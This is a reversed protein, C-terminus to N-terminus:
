AAAEIELQSRVIDRYTPCSAMLETHTGDGVVRGADLVIIRDASLVTAVRQAVVLVAADAVNEALAARLRADTAADLASFCDDLVFLAPRRLVARAIALRQRQGGSLNSGGQNVTSALAEPMQRVFDAAQAIELARWVEADTADPAGLRVTSAVTGSFLFAKQPVYGIQRWLEERAQQRVDIGDVLVQGGTVDHLRVVLEVLTTKGSGTGGVVATTTGPEVSLSVGDLVPKDAGPYGFTVEHLEVQGTRRAPRVPDPPDTIGPRVDLVQVIREASAAARPVIFLLFVAMMVSFLIQMIYSLFAILNGIPMSGHSVLLGGFWLVAVSSVNFILMIAPQAIAFLRTVRLAVGTLEANARHFREEEHEERAFARVVRAGSIQERLIRNVADIRVQNTRFLPVATRVMLGIVLGMLPLILLLLGSLQVNQRLAMIVGGVMTIPASVMMLLSMFVLLQVQQVDNTNRTILSPAGFTSLEAASFQGVAGFVRGRIDRGAGMAVRAAGYVSGIAAVALVATAALMLLGVSWIHGIDGVAVGNNILDANLDPLYLNALAQAFLLLVTAAVWTRYPGLAGRLLRTLASSGM